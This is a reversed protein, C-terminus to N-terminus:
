RFLDRVTIPRTATTTQWSGDPNRAPSTLVRSASFEPLYKSVPDDLGLKGSDVLTLAGVVSAVKSISAARFLTDNRMAVKNAVDMLGYSQLEAVHGNRAM